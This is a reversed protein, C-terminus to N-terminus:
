VAKLAKTIAQMHKLMADAKVVSSSYALLFTTVVRNEPQGSKVLADLKKTAQNATENAIDALGPLPFFDNMAKGSYITAALKPFTKATLQDWTKFITTLMRHPGDQGFKAHVGAITPKAEVEKVMGVIKQTLGNAASEGSAVTAIYKNDKKLRGRFESLLKTKVLPIWNTLATKFPDCGDLISKVYDASSKPIVKSKSFDDHAAKAVIKVPGLKNNIANVSATLAKTVTDVYATFDVPDLGTFAKVGNFGSAKFVTELDVLKIGVDTTPKVFKAVLGKNKDWGAKSLAPPYDFKLDAMNVDGKAVVRAAQLLQSVLSRGPHAGNSAL